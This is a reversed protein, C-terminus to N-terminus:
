TNPNELTERSEEQNFKQPMLDEDGFFLIGKELIDLV